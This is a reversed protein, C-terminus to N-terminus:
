TRFRELHNSVKDGLESLEQALRHAADVNAALRQSEDQIAQSIRSIEETAINQEKSAEAISVAQLNINEIAEKISQQSTSVAESTDMTQEVLDKSKDMQAVASATQGSLAEIMSQIEGTAEHTRQSLARVEDAVVAFGRGQEGARAAEIAANLALLNTQEAIGQITSLITNIQQAHDNLKNIVSTTEEIQSTLSSMRQRNDTANTESQLSESQANQAAEATFGANEAVTASTSSMEHIAAAVQTIEEQQKQISENNEAASRNSDQALQKLHTASDIVDIVMHHISEVFQNFNRSLQGIEDNSDVSLRRTLDADGQAIDAMADALNQLPSLLKRIMLSLLVTVLVLMFLTFLISRMAVGGLESLAEDQDMAVIISWETGEVPFRAALVDVGNLKASSVQNESLSGSLIDYLDSEFLSADPHILIQDNEDVMIAQGTQGLPVDLVENAVVAMGIDAAIVGAATPQAFSLVLEGSSADVYPATLIARNQSQAQQYWPRTRPDYDDPLDEAPIMIMEGEVTGIYMYLFDGANKGQTLIQTHQDRELSFASASALITQKADIWNTVFSALNQGAQDIQNGVSETIRSKTQQYNMFGYGVLLVLTILATAYTLKQRVGLANM